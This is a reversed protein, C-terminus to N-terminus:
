QKLNKYFTVVDKFKYNNKKRKSKKIEKPKPLNDGNGLKETHLASVFNAFNMIKYLPWNNLIGYAFAARFVDGAGTPDLAKSKYSAFFLIKNKKQFLLDM